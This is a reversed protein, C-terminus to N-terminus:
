SARKIRYYLTRYKSHFIIHAFRSCDQYLVVAAGAIDRGNSCDRASNITWDHWKSYHLCSRALDRYKLGDFNLEPNGM